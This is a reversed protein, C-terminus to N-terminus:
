ILKKFKFWKLASLVTMQKSKRDYGIHIPHNERVAELALLASAPDPYKRTIAGDPYIITLVVDSSKKVKGVIQVTEDKMFAYHIKLQELFTSNAM